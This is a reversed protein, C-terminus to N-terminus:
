FADINHLQSAFEGTMECGSVIISLMKIMNGKRAIVYIDAINGRLIYAIHNAPFKHEPLFLRNFFTYEPCLSGYHARCYDGAELELLTITQPTNLPETETLKPIIMVENRNKYRFCYGKSFGYLRIGRPLHGKLYRSYRIPENSCSSQACIKKTTYIYYGDMKELHIHEHLRQPKPIDSGFVSMLLVTLIYVFLRM